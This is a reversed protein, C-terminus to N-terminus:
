GVLDRLGALTVNAGTLILAVPRGAYEGAVKLLGALAAAAAGEALNHTASILQRQAELLEAESVLLFDDVRRAMVELAYPVPVRTAIGEAFTDARDTEVPRGAQWSLYMSPAAESQVCIVRTGPAFARCVVGTGGALAGNGVPVFVAAVDPLEQLIELAVTAAGATIAPEDGDDVFALGRAAAWERARLKALDFDEGAAVVQAGLERMMAAKDPNHREPVFVTARVGFVRCAYAIGLGHNGTSATVVGAARAEPALRRVYNLAGRLKFSAIVTHNEHKVYVRAGTLGSLAPNEHLPTRLMHRYLFRAADLVDAVTPAPKV